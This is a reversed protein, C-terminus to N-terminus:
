RGALLARLRASVQASDARALLARLVADAEPSRDLRPVVASLLTADSRSDIRGERLARALTALDAPDLRRGALAALASEQVDRDPDVTLEVLARSADPHAIRRLAFAAAARVSAEPADRHSLIEPMTTDLGANGLARLFLDRHEATHAASLGQLLPAVATTAAEADTESLAHAAAGLTYAAARALPGSAAARTQDILALTERDPRALLALRQFLLVREDDAVAAGPGRLIERLAQQAQAHGTAALLDLLLARGSAGIGEEGFLPVLDRCREPELLLLGTARWLWREHDPMTGGAGHALVDELMRAWTMGAVREELVRRETEASPAPVGPQRPELGALTPPEPPLPFTTRATLALTLRTHSTAPPTGEVEVRVDEETSLSVLHGDDALEARGQDQIRPNTGTSAVGLLRLSEYQRRQRELAPAVGATAARYDVLARGLGTSQREQWAAAPREPLRLETETLLWQMVHKFLAPSTPQFHLSRVRGRADVLAYGEHGALQASASAPDPLVEQGMIRFLHRRPPTMSLGLLTAGDRPGYSRVLLEADLDVTADAAQRAGPVPLPASQRGQWILQYRYSTGAPWSFRFSLPPNGGGGRGFPFGTVLAIVVLLVSVSAAALLRRTARAPPRSM